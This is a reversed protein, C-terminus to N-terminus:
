LIILMLRLFINILNSLSKIILLTIDKKIAKVEYYLSSQINVLYNEIEKWYDDFKEKLCFTINYLIESGGKELSDSNKTIESILFLFIKLNEEINNIYTINMDEIIINLIKSCPFYEKIILILNSMYEKKTNRCKKYEVNNYPEFVNDIYLSCDIKSLYEAFEISINYLEKRNIINSENSIKKISIILKLKINELYKFQLLPLLNHFIESISILDILYHPIKTKMNNLIPNTYDKLCYPNKKNKQDYCNISIKPKLPIDQIEEINSDYLYNFPNIIGTSEYKISFGPLNYCIMFLSYIMNNECDSINVIINKIDKEGNLIVRNVLELSIDKINQM